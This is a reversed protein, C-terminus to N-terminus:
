QHPEMEQHREGAAMAAIWGQLQQITAWKGHPFLVPDDDSQKLIEILWAVWAPEMCPQFWEWGRRSALADLAKYTSSLLRERVPISDSM